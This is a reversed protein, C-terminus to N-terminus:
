MDDHDARHLDHVTVGGRKESTTLWQKHQLTRNTDRHGSEWHERM